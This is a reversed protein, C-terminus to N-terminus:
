ANVSKKAVPDIATITDRVFRIGPKVIDSYYLRVQESTKHGFMVDFKSFGFFFSENKDILTLDLNDGFQESLITSLELGGFGAGLVIVRLKM